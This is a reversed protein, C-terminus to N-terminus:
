ATARIEYDKEVVGNKKDGRMHQQIYFRGSLKGFLPRDPTYERYHGRCLHLPTIGMEEGPHESSRAGAPRVVLVHYRYGSEVQGHRKTAIRSQKQDIDRTALSVNKCSLRLLVELVNYIYTDRTMRVGEEVFERRDWLSTFETEYVFIHGEESVVLNGDSDLKILTSFGVTPHNNPDYNVGIIKVHWFGDVWLATVLSGINIKKYTPQEFWFSENKLPVSLGRFEDWHFRFTEGNVVCTPSIIIKSKVIRGQLSDNDEDELDCRIGEHLIRKWLEANKM